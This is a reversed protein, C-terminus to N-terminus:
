GRRGGELMAVRYRLMVLEAELRDSHQREHRGVLLAGLIGMAGIVLAAKVEDSM